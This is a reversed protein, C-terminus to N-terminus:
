IRGIVCLVYGLYFRSSLHMRRTQRARRGEITRMEIKRQVRTAKVKCVGAIDDLIWEQFHNRRM